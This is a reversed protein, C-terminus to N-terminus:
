PISIHNHEKVAEFLLVEFIWCCLIGDSQKKMMKKLYDFKSSHNALKSGIDNRPTLLEIRDTKEFLSCCSAESVRSLDNNTTDFM